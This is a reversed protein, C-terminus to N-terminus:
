QASALAVAKEIREISLPRNLGIKSNPLTQYIHVKQTDWFHHDSRKPKNSLRHYDSSSLKESKLQM